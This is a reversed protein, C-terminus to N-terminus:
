PGMHVPGLEELYVFEIALHCTPPVLHEGEVIRIM